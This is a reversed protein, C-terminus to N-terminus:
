PMVSQEGPSRPEREAPVIGDCPLNFCLQEGGYPAKTRAISGEGLHCMHM